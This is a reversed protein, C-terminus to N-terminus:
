RVAREMAAGAGDSTPAVTAADIRLRRMIALVICCTAVIEETSAPDLGPNTAREIAPEAVLMRFVEEADDRRLRFEAPVEDLGAEVRALMQARPGTLTCSDFAVDAPAARVIDDLHDAVVGLANTLMEPSPPDAGALEQDMLRCTGVPLIHTTGDGLVLTTCEPAVDVAFHTATRPAYPAAVDPERVRLQRLTWQGVPDDGGALEHALHAHLCKVGTRTGGVGGAPRPGRHEAPISADRELAYRRHADAISGADVEAEARGVGGDAELRSVARVLDSGVLYYRTPMPTGDDLLPANRIVVPDGSPTAVVVVFAGQPPRGLLQAVRDREDM